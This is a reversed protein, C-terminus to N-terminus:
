FLFLVVICCFQVKIEAVWAQMLAPSAIGAMDKICISHAGMNAFEKALDRVWKVNFLTPDAHSTFTIAAQYHKNNDLVAQAVTAHNSVNNYADFVRFIDIGARAYYKIFTNTVDRPNINYGCLSDSRILASTPTNPMQSAITEMNRFPNEGKFRLPFDVTTGGGIEESGPYEMSAPRIKDILPAAKSLLDIRHMGGNLSQHGDRLTIGTM